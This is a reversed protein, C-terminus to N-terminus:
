GVNEYLTHEEIHAMLNDFCIKLWSSYEEPHNKLGIRLLNPDIYCYQEVEEPNVIPTDNSFGILVHDLEHETLGKDLSAKYTFHFAPFLETKMGMEENLRRHAATLISEGSKPHSCCTNSWLGGSHYKKSDRKQLLIEGMSNFIFISFARHLLGKEHAELKNMLGIENDNQDVLIVKDEM